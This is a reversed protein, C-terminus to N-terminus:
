LDREEAEDAAGQPSPQLPSLTPLAQKMTLRKTVTRRVPTRLSSRGPTSRLRSNAWVGRPARVFEAASTESVETASPSLQEALNQALAADSMELDDDSVVVELSDQPQQRDEAARQPPQQPQHHPQQRSPGEVLNGVLHALTELMGPDLAVQRNPTWTAASRMSSLVAAMNTATDTVHQAAEQSLNKRNKERQRASRAEKLDEECQQVWDEALDRNKIAEALQTAANELKVKAEAM